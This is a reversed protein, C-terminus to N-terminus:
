KISPSAARKMKPLRFPRQKPMAGGVEGGQRGREFRERLQRFRGLQDANLVRRIALEGVFRIRAVETQAAHFDKLRAQFVDESVSDAYIAADLARNAARLREQAQEMQPRRAQNIKRIELMQERSLGLQKLANSRVEAPKAPLSASESQQSQASVHAAFGIALLSSSFLIRLFLKQM